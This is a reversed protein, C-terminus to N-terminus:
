ATNEPRAPPRWGRQVRGAQTWFQRPEPVRASCVQDYEQAPPLLSQITYYKGQVKINKGGPPARLTAEHTVKYIYATHLVAILLNKIKTGIRRFATGVRYQGERHPNVWAAAAATWSIVSAGAFFALSYSRTVSVDKRRFTLKNEAVGRGAAM